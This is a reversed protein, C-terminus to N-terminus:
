PTVTVVIRRYSYLNPEGDDKLELIIHIEKAQDVEPAVFSAQQQDNGQIDVAGGYNGAERYV